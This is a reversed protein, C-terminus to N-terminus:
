IYAALPNRGTARAQANVHRVVTSALTKGDAVLNVTITQEGGAAAGPLRDVVKDAITDMWWTHRDLPLLAERGAEGGVQWKGNAMGLLSASSFIAGVANMEYSPVDVKTGGGPAESTTWKVKIKPADVHLKSYLDSIGLASELSGSWGKGVKAKLTLNKNDSGINDKWTTVNGLFTIAKDKM